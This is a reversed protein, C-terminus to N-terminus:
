RLAGAGLLERCKREMGLGKNEIEKLLFQRFICNNCYWLMKNEIDCGPIM